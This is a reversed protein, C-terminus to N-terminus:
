KGPHVFMNESPIRDLNEKWNEKEIDRVSVSVVSADIGLEEAATQQLKEALRQKIEASRGPYMTVDIHPM